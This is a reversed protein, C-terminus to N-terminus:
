AGNSPTIVTIETKYERFLLNKKKTIAVIIPNEKGKRM